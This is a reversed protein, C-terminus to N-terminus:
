WISSIFLEEGKFIQMTMRKDMMSSNENVPLLFNAYLEFEKDSEIVFEQARVTSDFM